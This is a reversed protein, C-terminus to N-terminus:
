APVAVPRKTGSQTTRRPGTWVQTKWSVPLTPLSSASLSLSFFIRVDEEKFLRQADGQSLTALRGRQELRRGGKWGSVLKVGQDM